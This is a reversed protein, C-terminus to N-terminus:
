AIARWRLRVLIAAILVAGISVGSLQMLHIYLPRRAVPLNFQGFALEKVLFKGNLLLVLWFLVRASLRRNPLAVISLRAFGWTMVVTLAFWTVEAVQKPVCTFPVMVAAFAPLYKYQYHGDDPRYLPEQALFRVAASHPVAFDVLEDRNLRVLEYLGAIILVCLVARTLL